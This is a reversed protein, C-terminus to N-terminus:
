IHAQGSEKAHNPGPGHQQDSETQDNTREILIIDELRSDDMLSKAPASRSEKRPDNEGCWPIILQLTTPKKHSTKQQNNTASHENATPQQKGRQQKQRKEKNGKTWQCYCSPGLGM